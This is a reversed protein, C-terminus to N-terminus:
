VVSKRDSETVIPAPSSTPNATCVGDTGVPEPSDTNGNGCGYIFLILFLMLFALVSMASTKNYKKM